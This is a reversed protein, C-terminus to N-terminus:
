GWLWQLGLHSLSYVPVIRVSFRVFRVTCAVPCTPQRPCWDSFQSLFSAYFPLGNALHTPPSFCVGWKEKTTPCGEPIARKMGPKQKTGAPSTPQKTPVWEKRNRDWPHSLAEAHGSRMDPCVSWGSPPRYFTVTQSYRSLRPMHHLLDYNRGVARM